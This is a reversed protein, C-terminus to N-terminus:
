RRKMISPKRNSPPKPLDSYNIKEDTVPKTILTDTATEITDIYAEVKKSTSLFFNIEDDLLSPLIIKKAVKNVLINNKVANTRREAEEVLTLLRSAAQRNLIGRVLYELRISEFDYSIHMVLHQILLRRMVTQQFCEGIKRIDDQKWALTLEQKMTSLVSLSSERTNESVVENTISDMIHEEFYSEYVLTRMLDPNDVTVTSIQLTKKKKIEFPKSASPTDQSTLVTPADQASETPKSAPPNDQAPESSSNNNNSNLIDSPKLATDVSATASDTNNNDTKTKTTPATKRALKGRFIRQIERAAADTDVDDHNEDDVDNPDRGSDIRIHGVGKTSNVLDLKLDNTDGNDNNNDINNDNTKNDNTYAFLEGDSNMYSDIISNYILTEHLNDIYEDVIEKIARKVITPVMTDVADNTLVNILTIIPNKSVHSRNKLYNATNEKIGQVVVDMAISVLAEDIITDIIAKLHITEVGGQLQYISSGLFGMLGAAKKESSEGNEIIIESIINVVEM